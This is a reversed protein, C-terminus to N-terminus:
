NNRYMMTERATNSHKLQRRRPRIARKKKSKRSDSSTSSHSRAANKTKNKKGHKSSIDDNAVRKKRAPSGKKRLGKDVDRKSKKSRESDSYAVREKSSKHKRIKDKDHKSSIDDKRDPSKMRFDTKRASKKDKVKKKDETSRKKGLGKVKEKTSSKHRRMEDKEQKSSIDDNTARSRNKKRHPSKIRVDTERLQKKDKVETEDEFLSREEFGKYEDQKSKTTDTNSRERSKHKKFEYKESLKRSTQIGKDHTSSIADESKMTQTHSTKDSNAVERKRSSKHERILINDKQTVKPSSVEGNEYIDDSEPLVKRKKDSPRVDSPSDESSKSAMNDQIIRQFYNSMKTDPHHDPESHKYLKRISDDGTSVDNEALDKITRSDVQSLSDNTSSSNENVKAESVSAQDKSSPLNSLETHPLKYTKKSKNTTLLEEPASSKQVNRIARDIEDALLAASDLEKKRNTDEMLYDGDDLISKIAQNLYNSIVLIKQFDHRNLRDKKTFKEEGGLVQASYGELLDAKNPKNKTLGKTEVDDIPLREEDNGDAVLSKIRWVELAYPQSTQDINDRTKDEMTKPRIECKSAIEVETVLGREENRPLCTDRELVRCTKTPATHLSNIRDGKKPTNALKNIIAEWCDVMTSNRN